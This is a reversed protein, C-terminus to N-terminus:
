FGIDVGSFKAAIEKRLKAILRDYTVAKRGVENLFDKFKSYVANIVIEVTESFTECGMYYKEGFLFDYCGTEKMIFNNVLLHLERKKEDVILLPEPKIVMSPFIEIEDGFSYYGGDNVIILYLNEPIQADYHYGNCFYVGRYKLALEQAHGQSGCLSIGPQVVIFKNKDAFEEAAELMINYKDFKDFSVVFPADKFAEVALRLKKKYKKKEYINDWRNSKMWSEISLKELSRLACTTDGQFAIDGFAKHALYRISVDYGLGNNYHRIVIGKKYEILRDIKKFQAEYYANM